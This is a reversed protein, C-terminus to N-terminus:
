PIRKAFSKSLVSKASTEAISASTSAAAGAVDAATGAQNVATLAKRTAAVTKFMDNLKGLTDIFNMVNNITDFITDGIATFKEWGDMSDWQEELSKWTDVLRTSSMWLNDVGEVSEKAIEFKVQKQILEKATM